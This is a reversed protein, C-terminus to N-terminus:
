LNRARQSIAQQALDNRRRQHVYRFALATLGALLPETINGGPGPLWARVVETAIVMAFMIGAALNISLGGHWIVWLVAGFLFIRNFVGSLSLSSDWAFSFSFDLAAPLELDLPTLREAFFTASILVLLLMRKPRAALRMTFVLIPLLVVLALLESPIFTQDAVVLRGVLVVAILLLLTELTRSASVLSSCAQSIVLWYTLYLWTLSISLQPHFLPILAAKLRGLDLHPVFPAFRWALWLGILLAAGPDRPPKEPRLPLHMWGAMARWTVGAIAGLLTGLANLTLDNLSPVRPSLYVQAVEITLSVLTGLLTAVIIATRRRCYSNLWLSLCFGAPLYLLVNAIRDGRGARAWSLRSLADLLGGSVADPKFNFPYLSGYAILALVGLLLWPILTAPRKPRMFDFQLQV